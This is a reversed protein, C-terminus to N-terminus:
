PKPNVKDHLGNLRDTVNALGKLPPAILRVTPIGIEPERLQVEEEATLMSPKEESSEPPLPPAILCVTPIGIEPERLQAEEEATLVIVAVDQIVTMMPTSQLIIEFSLFAQLIIEFSLFAKGDKKSLKMTAMEASEATMTAMEASEATKLARSFLSLDIELAIRNDNQSEIRYTRFVGGDACDAKVSAWVQVDHFTGPNVVISMESPSMIITGSNSVKAPAPDPDPAKELARTVDLLRRQRDLVARLRM